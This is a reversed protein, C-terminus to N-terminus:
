ILGPIPNGKYGVNFPRGSDSMIIKKIPMGMATGITAHLDPILVKDSIVEHGRDTAGIVQGSKIGGGGIVTSFAKAWHDRGMSEEKLNPNRGFETAVVVITSELLGRESLDQMLAALAKDLDRAKEEPMENHTDWGGKTVEICRVGHEILRRALLCGQGFKSGKGYRERVAEPEANINFAALDKSEMLTVAETYFKEYAGISRQKYKERFTRDFVSALELQDHYQTKNVWAPRKSHQLGKSADGLPIAGLEPPLFGAFPYENGPSIVVNGPLAPNIKGQHLMSWSGLTPHVISGRPAYGTHMMYNGQAHAGQTSYMSRIIALKDMHKATEPFFESLQIGDVNTGIAKVPGAEATDPHPDFTDLHSMGGGMYLFILKKDNDPLVDATAPNLFPMGVGVGLATRAINSMFSRRGLESTQNFLNNM